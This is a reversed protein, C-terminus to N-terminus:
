TPFASEWNGLIAIILVKKKAIAEIQNRAPRIAGVRARMAPKKPGRTENLRKELEELLPNPNSVPKRLAEFFTRTVLFPRKDSDVRSKWEENISLELLHWQSKLYECTNNPEKRVAFVDDRLRNIAHEPSDTPSKRLAEEVLEFVSYPMSVRNEPELGM